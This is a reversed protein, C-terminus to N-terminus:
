QPPQMTMTLTFIGAENVNSGSVFFMVLDPVGDGDGAEDLRVRFQATSQGDAVAQTVAATVDCAVSSTASEALVCAEGTTSQDWLDPSFRSYRITEVRLAGLGFPDGSVQLRESRLEARAVTGDPLGSLDFSLFFQVGDGNPFGPNLNDGAFLGTGMGRFGRPTHGEMAGGQNPVSVVARDQGGAALGPLLGAGAALTAVFLRWM